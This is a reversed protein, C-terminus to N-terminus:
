KKDFTHALNLIHDAARELNGVLNILVNSAQPQCTGENLRKIHGDVIAKKLDDVEDEYAEARVVAHPDSGDFAAMSEGFLQAIKDEMKRIEDCVTDSFELRDDVYHRTYKVVNDALDAIRMIDALSEHLASITKEDQYSIDQGSLKILFKTFRRSAEGVNSIRMEIDQAAGTDKSLFRGVSDQLIGIAITAIREAEKKAQLVAIAPTELFRNDLYTTAKDEVNEKEKKDRVILNALKVFLNIFPFFILVCVVNFFTHFMAIQTAHAGPFWVAFTMDMFQPWCLLLIMFLVSGFVNFMLHILAARKANTNAGISSIIATVCSGINSGLIIYLISNGGGGITIGASVLVILISTMASSSQLLATLAIGILLLLVPNDIVKLADGFAPTYGAVSPDTFVKMSISMFELGLFVLGIGGLVFGVTKIKDKKFLMTMFMGIFAFPLIFVTFDFSGLAALQATVTTGINAGMIIATAMTLSMVGANVFGITMITTAGSSQVLATTVLGIGIGAFKGTASTKGFWNRLRDNALKEIADSLVKFGFLLIGLGGLLGCIASAIEM